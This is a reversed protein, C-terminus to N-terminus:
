ENPIFHRAIAAVPLRSQSNDLQRWGWVPHIEMWGHQTDLVHPGTAAIHRGIEPPSINAGTCIGVDAGDRPTPPPKDPTCGAQDAPVIELILEELINRFDLLSRFPPDVRM